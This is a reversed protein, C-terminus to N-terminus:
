WPLSSPWCTPQQISKIDQPMAERTARVMLSLQDEGFEAYMRELQHRLVGKAQDDVECIYYAAVRHGARLACYLATGIGGCLDLIRLGDAMGTQQLVGEHLGQLKSLWSQQRDPEEELDEGLYTV